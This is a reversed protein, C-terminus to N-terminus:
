SKLAEAWREAQFGVLGVTEGLVFPRKVLKGNSSLLTLAEAKSMAPLTTKLDLAKYELGSTNFLKRLEGNQLTLMRKLEPLTPPQEYIPREEFTFGHDRLWRTADRCTSCKAYTYVVLRKPM